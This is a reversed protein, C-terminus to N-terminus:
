LKSNEFSVAMREEYYDIICIYQLYITCQLCQNELRVHLHIRKRIRLYEYLLQVFSSKVYEPQLVFKIIKFNWEVVREFDITLVVLPTKHEDTNLKGQSTTTGNKQKVGTRKGRYEILNSFPRLFISNQFDATLYNTRFWFITNRQIRIPKTSCRDVTYYITEKSDAGTYPTYPTIPWLEDIM